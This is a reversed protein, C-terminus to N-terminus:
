FPIVKSQKRYQQEASQNSIRTTEGHWSVYATGIAGDRHKRVILEAQDDPSEENHVADRYFFLQIDAQNGIATSDQFDGKRPRKDHRDKIRPTVQALVFVTCDLNQESAMEKFRGTITGLEQARNSNRDREDAMMDTVQDVVIYDLRGYMQKVRRAESWVDMATPNPMHRVALSLNKLDVLTSGFRLEEQNTMTVMDIFSKTMHRKDEPTYKRLKMLSIGSLVSTFRRTMEEESMEKSIFLGFKDDQSLKVAFNVGVSTKGMGSEGGIIILDNRKFGGLLAPSDLQNIGTYLRSQGNGESAARYSSAFEMAIDGIHQAPKETVQEFINSLLMMSENHKVTASIDQRLAIAEIKDKAELMRVSLALYKIRAAFREYNVRRNKVLNELMILHPEGGIETLLDQHESDMERLKLAVTATDVDEGENNLLQMAEFIYQHRKIYFDNPQLVLAISPFIDYDSLCGGILYQEAEHDYLQTNPQTM